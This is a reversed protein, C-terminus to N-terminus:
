QTYIYDYRSLDDTFTVFYLYGGRTPTSMPGCVDSHILELRETAREGQKKLLPKQWKVLYVLKANM